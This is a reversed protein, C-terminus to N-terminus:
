GQSHMCANSNEEQAKSIGLPGQIRTNENTKRMFRDLTNYISQNISYLLSAAFISKKCPRMQKAPSWSILTIIAPCSTGLLGNLTLTASGFCTTTSQGVCALRPLLACTLPIITRKQMFYSIDWQTIHYKVSLAKEQASYLVLYAIYFNTDFGWKKGNEKPSQYVGGM